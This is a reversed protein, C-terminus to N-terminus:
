PYQKFFTPFAKQIDIGSTICYTQRIEREWDYPGATKLEKLLDTKFAENFTNEFYKGAIRFTNLMKPDLDKRQDKIQPFRENLSVPEQGFTWDCYTLFADFINEFYGRQRVEEIMHGSHDEVKQVFRWIDEPAKFLDLQNKATQATNGDPHASDTLQYNRREDVLRRSLHSVFFYDRLTDALTQPDTTDFESFDFGAKIFEQRQESTMNVLRNTVYFIQRATGISHNVIGSWELADDQNELGFMGSGETLHYVNIKENTRTHVKTGQPEPTVKGLLYCLTPHRKLTDVIEPKVGCYDVFSPVPISYKSHSDPSLTDTFRISSGGEGGNKM